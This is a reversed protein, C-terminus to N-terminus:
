QELKSLETYKNITKSYDVLMRKKQHNEGTVLVHARWPSRSEEIIRDHLLKEVETAFLKRDAESCFRSLDAVPKCDPTLAAFLRQPEVTATGVSCIKLPTRPGGFKIELEEHKRLIDHGIIVNACTNDKFGIKVDFADHKGYQITATCAGMVILALDASAMTMKSLSSQVVELDCKRAFSASVFSESSGFYVLCNKTSIGSVIVRIKSKGHADGTPVTSAVTALLVSTTSPHKSKPKSPNSRCCKAWHRTKLCNNCKAHRAPCKSKLHRDFVRFFCKQKITAVVVSDSVLAEASPPDPPPTALAHATVVLEVYSGAQNHAMEM